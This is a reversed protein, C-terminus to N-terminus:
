ANVATLERIVQEMTSVGDAIGVKVADRGIWVKAGAVANIDIKPRGRQVVEKFQEFYATLMEILSQYQPLSTPQGFAKVDSSTIMVPDNGENREARDWNSYRLITGISGALGSETIYVRDCQSIIAYAASCAQPDVLGFIPKTSLERAAFVRSCTEALRLCSGGPSDSEILIANVDGDNMAQSFDQSFEEYSTAGSLMTLLNAKPFLPGTLELIAVGDIIEYPPLLEENCQCGCNQCNYNGSAVPGFAGQVMIAKLVGDKCSPCRRGRKVKSVFPQPNEGAVHADVISCITELWEPTIAWPTSQIASRVRSLNTASM